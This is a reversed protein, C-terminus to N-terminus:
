IVPLTRHTFHVHEPAPAFSGPLAGQAHAPPASALLLALLPLMLSLRWVAMSRPLTSLNM